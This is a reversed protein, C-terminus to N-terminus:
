TREHWTAKSSTPQANLQPRSLDGHVMGVGNQSNGKMGGDDLEDTVVIRQLFKMSKYGRQREVRLRVLAGHPVARRVMPWDRDLRGRVHTAHDNGVEGWYLRPHVMRIEVAIFALTLLSVTLIWHSIRVWRAHGPGGSARGPERLVEAM